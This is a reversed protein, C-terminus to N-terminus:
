ALLAAFPATTHTQFGHPERVIFFAALAHREAFRMGDEVGLVALATALADAQMCGPHVVSVSAVHNDASRGTRPDLTHAHRQGGHEVFRRYDGSTAIASDALLVLAAHAAGAPSEVAVRWPQGDPRRGRALFEGGAEVLYDTVGLNQLALAARDVGYGKAISSFDLATGGEQWARTGAREVRRWGCRANAAAIADPGPPDVARQHPGFGWAQVLPAITPDYAGDTEKALWLAYDLVELCPAPLEVWGTAAQNYRMIDTGPEWNSMQAVVTDLAAQLSLRVTHESLHSPLSLRASWTTGMTAGALACPQGPLSGYAAHTAKPDQTATHLPAYSIM